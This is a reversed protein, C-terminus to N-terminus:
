PVYCTSDKISDAVSQMFHGALVVINNSWATEVTQQKWYTMQNVFPITTLQHLHVTLIFSLLELHHDGLHKVGIKFAVCGHKLSLYLSKEQSSIKCDEKEKM